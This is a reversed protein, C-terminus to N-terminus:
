VGRNSYNRWPFVGTKGVGKGNLILYYFFKCNGSFRSFFIRAPSLVQVEVPNSGGAGLAPTDAMGGGRCFNKLITYHSRLLQKVRFASKNRMRLSYKIQKPVNVTRPLDYCFGGIEYMNVIVEM